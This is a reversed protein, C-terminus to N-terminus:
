WGRGLSLGHMIKCKACSMTNQATCFDMTRRICYLGEDHEFHYRTCYSIYMNLDQINPIQYYIGYQVLHVTSPTGYKFSISQSM